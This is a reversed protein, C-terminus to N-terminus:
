PFLRESMLLPATGTPLCAVANACAPESGQGRNGKVKGRQAESEISITGQEESIAFWVPTAVAVGSKRYTTLSLFQARALAAFPHPHDM